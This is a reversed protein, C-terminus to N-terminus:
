RRILLIRPFLHRAGQLREIDNNEITLYYSDNARIGDDGRVVNSNGTFEYADCNSCGLHLVNQGAVGIENNTFTM